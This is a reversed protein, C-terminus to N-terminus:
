KQEKQKGNKNGKTNFPCNLWKSIEQMIGMRFGETFFYLSVLDSRAPEEQGHWIERLSKFVTKDEEESRAMNERQMDTYAQWIINAREEKTTQIM